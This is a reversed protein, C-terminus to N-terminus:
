CLCCCGAAGKQQVCAHSIRPLCGLLQSLHGAWAVLGGQTRIQLELHSTTGSVDASWGEGGQEGECEEGASVTVTEGPVLVTTHLSQYGNEKPAAAALVSLVFLSHTSAEPAREKCQGHLPLSVVQEYKAPPRNPM